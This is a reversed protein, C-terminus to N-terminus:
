LAPRVSHPLTQESVGARDRACGDCGTHSIGYDTRPELVMNPADRDYGKEAAPARQLANVRTSKEESGKNLTIGNELNFM